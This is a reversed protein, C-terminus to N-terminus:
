VPSRAPAAVHVHRNVDPGHGSRERGFRVARPDGSGGRLAHVLLKVTNADAQGTVAETVLVDAAGRADYAASRFPRPQTLAAFASAVAVVEMSRTPQTRLNPYGQGCRWHHGLAASVAPHDGLVRALHYAGLFPHAAVRLAEDHGLRERLRGLRPPLHRMGLDHLLAAAALEPLGRAEGVVSLLMRVAIAASAFAHGHVPSAARRLALLEEVLVEPLRVALLARRVAERTGDEPFLHRYAHDGLPAAVDVALATDSLATRPLPRAAAAADAISQPSLVVGRTALVEGRVDVLEDQLILRDFV